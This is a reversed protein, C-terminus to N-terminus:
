HRSILQQSGRASDLIHVVDVGNVPVKLNYSGDEGWVRIMPERKDLCVDENVTASV